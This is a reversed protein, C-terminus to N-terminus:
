RLVNKIKAHLISEIQRVREYMVSPESAHLKSTQNHVNPQRSHSLRDIFERIGPIQLCSCFDRYGYGASHAEAFTDFLNMGSEESPDLGRLYGCDDRHLRGSREAGVLRQYPYCNPCPTYGAERPEERCSFLKPEAQMNRASQCFARHCIRSFANGILDEGPPDIPM